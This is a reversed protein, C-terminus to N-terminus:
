PVGPPVQRAELEAVRQEARKARRGAAFRHPLHFLLGLLFGLILVAPLVAGLPLEVAGFPWFSLAVAGRNSLLFIVLALLV